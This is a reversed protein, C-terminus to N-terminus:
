KSKCDASIDLTPSSVRKAGVVIELHGKGDWHMGNAVGIKVPVKLTQRGAAEFTIKGSAWATNAQSVLVWQAQVPGSAAIDFQFEFAAPAPGTYNVPSVGAGGVEIEPAAAAGGKQAPKATRLNAEGKASAEVQVEAHGGTAGSEGGQVRCNQPPVLLAAAPKEYSLSTIEMQTQEKGGAPIMVAKVIFNHKEELFMRMKGKIEPVPMEYVKTPIGNVTEPRLAVPKSKAMEARMEEAGGIPDFMSPLYSSTYTSVICPEGELITWYQHTAFDYIQRMHMGPGRDSKPVIQELSVKSGDRAVKITTTGANVTLSYVQPVPTSQAQVGTVATALGLMLVLPIACLVRM